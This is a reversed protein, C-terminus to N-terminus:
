EVVEWLGDDRQRFLHRRDPSVYTRLRPPLPTALREFVVDGTLPNERPRIAYSSGIIAEMVSDVASYGPITDIELLLQRTICVASGPTLASIRQAMEYRTMM